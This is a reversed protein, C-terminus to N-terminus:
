PGGAPTASRHRLISRVQLYNSMAIPAIVLSSGVVIGPAGLRAGLWLSVPWNAVAAVVYLATQLRTRNLGNLVVGFCGTLAFLAAWVVLSLILEGDHVDRGVWLRLVPDAVAALALGGGVFILATVSLSRRLARTIWAWDDNEAAHTYASWLPTLVTLHISVLVMFLKQMVNFDGAGALGVVRTAIFPDSSFLLLSATGLLWFRVSSGLIPRLTARVERLGLRPWSWGRRRLFYVLGLLAALDYLGYYSAMFTTLPTRGAFIVVSALLFVSQVVDFASRRDAEQYSLFGAVNLNLPTSVMFLAGVVIASTAVAGAVASGEANLWSAWPAAPGLALLATVLVAAVGVLAYLVSFFLRQAPEDRGPRAALSALQHRMGQGLGLDFGAGLFALSSLVSWLGFADPTLARAVLGISVFSAALAFGRAGLMSLTGRLVRSTLASGPAPEVTAEPSPPAGTM